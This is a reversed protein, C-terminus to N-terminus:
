MQEIVSYSDSAVEKPTPLFEWGKLFDKGEEFGANTLQEFPFNKKAVKDTMIFFVCTGKCYEMSAILKEVAAEDEALIVEEYDKIGFSDTVNKLTAPEVFFARMKGPLLNVLKLPSIEQSKDVKKLNEYLRGVADVDCWPTKVFYSMWLRNFPDSMDLGPRSLGGAYHYIKPEVSIEKSGRERRIFSNFQAPLKVTRKSFCYNLVTQELWKHKPNEGRFKIGEMIAEEEARLFKLNMLLVGCNFYDEPNVLGESCLPFAKEPNVGNEMEPVVGLMKRGLRTQSVEKVDLNVITDPDLFLAKNINQPLVQPILIKYFAGVTSSTKELGPVLEAIKAVTEPLLEDLNYFNVTQGYRKVLSSFKEIDEPTLTNDHLIHATIQEQTNEFVSVLSTGAFKAYHGTRNRFCYCVNIM